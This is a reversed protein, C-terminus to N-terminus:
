DDKDFDEYQKFQGTLFGRGLPSYAVFAIGLERTTRLVEDEPDRTWLSYESQLAAIPQVANAGGRSRNGAPAARRRTKDTGFSPLNLLWFFKRGGAVLPRGSWCRMTALGTFM